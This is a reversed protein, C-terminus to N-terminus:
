FFLEKILVISSFIIMITGVINKLKYVYIMLDQKNSNNSELYQYTIISMYFPYEMKLEKELEELPIKILQINIIIYMIAAFTVFISLALDNHEYFSKDRTLLLPLQKLPLQAGEILEQHLTPFYLSLLIISSLLNRMILYFTIDIKAQKLGMKNKDIKDLWVLYLIFTVSVGLAIISAIITSKDM